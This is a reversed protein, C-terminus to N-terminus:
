QKSGEKEGAAALDAIRKRRNRARGDDDAFWGCCLLAIADNETKRKCARPTRRRDLSNINIPQDLRHIRRRTQRFLIEGRARCEDSRYSAILKWRAARRRGGDGDGIGVREIKLARRGV